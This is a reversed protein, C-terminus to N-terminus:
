HTHPSVKTPNLGDLEDSLRAPDVIIIGSKGIDLVAEARLDRLVRAVVDRVSGVADALEQQTVRALLTTGDSQAAALDLLHRAIRQRVSGFANGAFADLTETLRLGVEVATAWAIRPDSQALNRLRDVNLVVLSTETLVQVGVNVPGAVATAVGLVGGARVYRV